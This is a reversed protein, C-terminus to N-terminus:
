VGSIPCRPKGYCAAIVVVKTGRDGLSDLSNLLGRVLSNRVLCGGEIKLVLTTEGLGATGKGSESAELRANM